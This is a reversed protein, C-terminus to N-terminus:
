GICCRLLWLCWVLIWRWWGFVLGDWICVGSVVRCGILCFGCVCMLCIFCVIMLCLEEVVFDLWDVFLCEVMCMVNGDM